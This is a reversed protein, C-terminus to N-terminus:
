DRLPVSREALLTSVALGTVATRGTICHHGSWSGDENQLGTLREKINANWKAAHEGGLRAMALNINTYSIFEEGGMSGLGSLVAEDSVRQVVAKIRQANRRRAAPTRTLQELGQALGYLSVGASGSSDARGPVSSSGKAPRATSRLQRVTFRDVRALVREDIEHGARQAEFLAQSAYATSHIPAWGGETNWSGDSCQGLEIKRLVKALAKAVRGNESKTRMCGEARVLVKAALYTDAYRGIKSHLQTGPRRPSIRDTVALGKEPSAEVSVLVYLVARHLPAQFTGKSPTNGAAMLALAALSTNGVDPEYQAAVMQRQTPRNKNRRRGPRRTPAVRKQEGGQESWGGSEHQALILWKIGKHVAPPLPVSSWDRSVPPAVSSSKNPSPGEGPARGPPENALAGAAPLGLLLLGAALRGFFRPRRGAPRHM